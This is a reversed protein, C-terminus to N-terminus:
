PVNAFHKLHRHYNGEIISSQYFCFALITLSLSLKVEHVTWWTRRFAGERMIKTGRRVSDLM